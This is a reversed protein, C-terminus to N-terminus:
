DPNCASRRPEIFMRIPKAFDDRLEHLRPRYVVDKNAYFMADGLSLVESDAMVGRRRGDIVVLYGTLDHRPSQTAAWDLYEALQQAGERARADRYNLLNQTRTRSQGMWKIEILGVRKAFDWNVRVDIPHSSDVNQEEAVTAGGRLAARLFAAVSDRMLAEPRNTFIFRASSEWAEALTSCGCQRVVAVRYGELADELQRFTPLAFVSAHISPSPNVVHRKEGGIFFTEGQESWVYVIAEQSLSEYDPAEVNRYFHFSGSGVIEVVTVGARAEADYASALCMMDRFVYEGPDGMGGRRYTRGARPPRETLPCVVVLSGPIKEPAVHEYLRRITVLTTRLGKVGDPGFREFVTAVYLREAIEAMRVRDLTM